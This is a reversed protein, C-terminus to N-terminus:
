EPFGFKEEMEAIYEFDEKHIRQQEAKFWGYFEEVNEFYAKAAEELDVSGKANRIYNEASANFSDFGLLTEKSLTARAITSTETLHEVSFVIQPLAAHQTHRRLGLIFQTPGDRDLVEGRKAMYDPMSETYRNEYLKRTHDVLSLASAVFNHLKRTGEIQQENRVAPDAAWKKFLEASNPHHFQFTEILDNFNRRVLELTLDFMLTRQRLQFQPSRQYANLEEGYATPFSLQM